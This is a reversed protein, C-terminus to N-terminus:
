LIEGTYSILLKSGDFNEGIEEEETIGDVVVDGNVTGICNNDIGVEHLSALMYCADELCLLLTITM